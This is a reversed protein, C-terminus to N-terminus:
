PSHTRGQKQRACLWAWCHGRGLPPGASGWFRCCVSLVALRPQMFSPVLAGKVDHRALLHRALQELTPVRLEVLGQPVKGHHRCLYSLM